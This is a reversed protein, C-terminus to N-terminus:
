TKMFRGLLGRALPNDPRPRSVEARRFNRLATFSQEWIVPFVLCRVGKGESVTPTKFRVQSLGALQELMQGAKPAQCLFQQGIQHLNNVQPNTDASKPREGECTRLLRPRSLPDGLRFPTPGRRFALSCSPPILNGSGCHSELHTELVDRSPQGKFVTWFLAGRKAACVNPMRSFILYLQRM